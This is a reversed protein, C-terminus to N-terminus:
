NVRVREVISVMGGAIPEGDPGSVPLREDTPGHYMGLAIQYEGPPMDHPLPVQRLDDVVEGVPWATTFFTNERPMADWQAAIQGSEDLVHVFITYDRNLRTLAQWYLLLQMSEGPALDTTLLDYGALRVAPGFSYHVVRMPRAAASRRHLVDLNLDGVTVPGISRDLRVSGGGRALAPISDDISVVRSVSLRATGYELNKMYAAFGAVWARAVRVDRVDVASLDASAVVVGVDEAGVRRVTVLSSSSASIGVGYIRLLNTDEITAQSEYLAIGTGLIDHFASQEIRGRARDSRVADFSASAFETLVFWFDAHAVHIAQQATSGLLRCRYLHVPSSYFAVGSDSHWGKRQVGSTAGIEVNRLSSSMGADARYVVIGGWDGDEPLLHIGQGDPGHLLLPATALLVAQRDFTLTVPQTVWLGVKDPLILDGAVHWTGPKLALFGPQESQTLFPHRDLAEQLGPQDPLESVSLSVPRKQPVKVIVPENTGVLHTVLELTSSAPDQALGEIAAIPIHLTVYRPVPEQAARLVVVPVAERYVLAPDGEVVWDFQVDLPRDNAWVQDLAVPYRLINAVRVEVWQPAVAGRYAHVTQPPHLARSLAAQRESVVEWPPNLYAPFFEQALAAYYRGFADALAQELTEVYSPEAIRLAERAYAEAFSLDVSGDLAVPTDMAALAPVGTVIPELRSTLPNYYFTGAPWGGTPDAGWLDAHALYRGMLDAEFVESRELDGDQFARVLAEADAIHEVSAPDRSEDSSVVEVFPPVIFAPVMPHASYLDGGLRVIAGEALGRSSFFGRAIREEMAYVGWATGNVAVNVYTRRLALLGTRDLAQAYLWGNLYGRTAPSWLSFASMGLPGAGQGVDVALSWKREQWHDASSGAIQLRVPIGEGEFLVRAPQWDVTDPLIGRQLASRRRTSLMGYAEDAIEFQLTPLDNRYASVSPFWRRLLPDIAQRGELGYWIGMALLFAACALAAWLAPVLKRHARIWKGARVFTADRRGPPTPILRIRMTPKARGVAKISLALLDM